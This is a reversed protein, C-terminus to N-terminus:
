FWMEGNFRNIFADECCYMNKVNKHLYKIQSLPPRAEDVVKSIAAATAAALAVPLLLRPNAAANCQRHNVPAAAVPV